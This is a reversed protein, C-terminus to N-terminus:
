DAYLFSTGVIGFSLHKAGISLIGHRSATIQNSPPLALYSRGINCPIIRRLVIMAIAAVAMTPIVNAEV